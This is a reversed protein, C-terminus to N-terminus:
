YFMCSSLQFERKQRGRSVHKLLFVPCQLSCVVSKWSGTGGYLNARQGRVGHRSVSDHQVTKRHSNVVPLLLACCLLDNFIRFRLAMMIQAVAAYVMGDGPLANKKAGGAVLM